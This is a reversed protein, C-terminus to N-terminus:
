PTSKSGGGLASPCLPRHPSPPTPPLQKASPEVSRKDNHQLRNHATLTNPSKMRCNAYKILRLLGLRMLCTMTQVKAIKAAVILSVSESMLNKRPPVDVIRAILM